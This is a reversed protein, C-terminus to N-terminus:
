RPRRRLIATTLAADARDMQGATLCGGPHTALLLTALGAQEDVLRQEAWVSDLRGVV